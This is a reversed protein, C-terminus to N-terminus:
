GAVVRRVDALFRDVAAAAVASTLDMGQVFGHPLGALHPAHLPSVDGAGRRAAEPTWQAAAWRVDDAELGFGHGTETM